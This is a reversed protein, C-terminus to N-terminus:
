KQHENKVIWVRKSLSKNPTLSQLLFNQIIVIKWLPQLRPVGFDEFFLSNKQVMLNWNQYCWQSRWTLILNQTLKQLLRLVPLVIKKSFVESIVNKMFFNIIKLLRQTFKGFTHSLRINRAEFINIKPGLEKFQSFCIKSKPGFQGNKAPEFNLSIKSLVAITPVAM